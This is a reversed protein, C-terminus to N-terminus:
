NSDIPPPLFLMVLFLIRPSRARSRTTTTPAVLAIPWLVVVPLRVPFTSFSFAPRGPTVTVIVDFFRCPGRVVVVDAAPAKM